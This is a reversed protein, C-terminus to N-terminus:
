FITKINHMKTDTVRRQRGGESKKKGCCHQQLRPFFSTSSNVKIKKM